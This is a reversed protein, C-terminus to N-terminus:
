SDETFLHRNLVLDIEEFYRLKFFSLQRVLGPENCIYNVALNKEFAEKMNHMVLNNYPFSVRHQLLRQLILLYHIPFVYLNDDCLHNQELVSVINLKQVDLNKKTFNQMFYIDFRTLL